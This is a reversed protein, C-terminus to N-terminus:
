QKRVGANGCLGVGCIGPDPFCYERVNFEPAQWRVREMGRDGIGLRQVYHHDGVYVLHVFNNRIVSGVSLGALLAPTVGERSLRLAEVVIGADM